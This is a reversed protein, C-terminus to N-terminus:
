NTSRRTRLSSTLPEFGRMEVLKKLVSLPGSKDMALVYVCVLMRTGAAPTPGIM